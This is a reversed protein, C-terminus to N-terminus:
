LPVIEQSVSVDGWQTKIQVDISVTRGTQTWSWQLIRDVGPVSLIARKLESEKEVRSADARFIIGYWDVGALPDANTDVIPSELAESRFLLLNELTSVAAATGDEAMKIKGDEFVIDFDGASNKSLHINIAM